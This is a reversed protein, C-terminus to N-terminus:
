RGIWHVPYSVLGERLLVEPGSISEVCVCVIVYEVRSWKKEREYAKREGIKNKREKKKENNLVFLLSWRFETV